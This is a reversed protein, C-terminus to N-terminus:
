HVQSTALNPLISTALEKATAYGDDIVIREIFEFEDEGVKEPSLLYLRVLEFGAAEATNYALASEPTNETFAKYRLAPLLDSYLALLKKKFAQKDNIVQEIESLQITINPMPAYQVFTKEQTKSETTPLTVGEISESQAMFACFLLFLFPSYKYQMGDMM